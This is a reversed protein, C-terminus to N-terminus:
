IEEEEDNIVFHAEKAAEPIPKGQKDLKLFEDLNVKTEYEAQMKTVYAASQNAAFSVNTQVKHLMAGRNASGVSSV